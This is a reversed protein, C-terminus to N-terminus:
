NRPSLSSIRKMRLAEKFWKFFDGQAQFLRSLGRQVSCRRDNSEALPSSSCNVSVSFCCCPLIMETAKALFFLPTPHPPTLQVGGCLCSNTNNILESPMELAPNQRLRLRMGWVLLHVHQTVTTVSLWMVLLFCNAYGGKEVSGWSGEKVKCENIM